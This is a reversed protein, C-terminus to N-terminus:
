DDEDAGPEGFQALLEEDQDPPMADYQHERLAHSRESTPQSAAALPAAVRSSPTSVALLRARDIDGAAILEAPTRGERGVPSDLWEVLTVRTKYRKKARQLVDRVAFIRRRNADTIVEGRAWLHLTQRSVGVLQAVRQQSLGTEERIWALAAM